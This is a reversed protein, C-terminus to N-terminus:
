GANAGGSPCTPINSAPAPDLIVTVGREKAAGDLAAIGAVFQRGDALDIYNCGATIAVRAVGYDQMQFPGATHILTDVGSKRLLSSMAPDHVNILVANGRPLGLEACAAEAKQLNRGAILLRIGAESVLCDAIRKGFFGYGGLVLITHM